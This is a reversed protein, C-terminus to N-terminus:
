NLQDPYPAVNQKKVKWDQAKYDTLVRKIPQLM